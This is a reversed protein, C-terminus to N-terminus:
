HSYLSPLRGREPYEENFTACLLTNPAAQDVLPSQVKLNLCGGGEGSGVLLEM